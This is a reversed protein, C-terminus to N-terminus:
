WVTNLLSASALSDRTSTTTRLAVALICSDVLATASAAVFALLGKLLRPHGWTRKSEESGSGTTM